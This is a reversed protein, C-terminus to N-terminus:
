IGIRMEEIKVKIAPNAGLNNLFKLRTRCGSQHSANAGCFASDIHQIVTTRQDVDAFRGLSRCGTLSRQSRPKTLMDSFDTSPAIDRESIHCATVQCKCALPPYESGFKRENGMIRRFPIGAAKAAFRRTRTAWSCVAYATPVPFKRLLM